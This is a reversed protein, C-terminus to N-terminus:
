QANLQLIKAARPDNPNAKAWAVAASDQPHPQNTGGGNGGPNGGGQGGGSGVPTMQGKVTASLGARLQQIAGPLQGPTITDPLAKMAEQIQENSPSNGRNLATAYEARATQAAILWRQAAPSGQKALAIIPTNMIQVNARPFQDSAKQLLDLQEAASQATRAVVQSSGGQTLRASAGAGAKSGALGSEGANPSWNPDAMISQAMLKARPGRFSVMSPALPNQPRTMAGQLAKMEEPTLDQANPPKPKPNNKSDTQAGYYKTRANTEELTAKEQAMKNADPVTPSMGLSFQWQVAQNDEEPTTPQGANKKAIYSSLGQQAAMVSQKKQNQGAVDVGKNVLDGIAPLAAAFGKPQQMLALQQASANQLIPAVSPPTYYPGYDAM